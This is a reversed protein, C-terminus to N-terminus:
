MLGALGFFIGIFGLGAFLWDGGQVGRRCVIAKPNGQNIFLRYEKGPVYEAHKRRPVDDMSQQEYEKGDFKYRFVPAYSKVSKSSYVRFGVFTGTVTGRCCMRRINIWLFLVVFLLGFFFLFWFGNM